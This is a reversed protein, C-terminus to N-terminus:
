IVDFPTGDDDYAVSPPTWIPPEEDAPDSRVPVTTASITVSTGPTVLISVKSGDDSTFTLFGGGARIAALTQRRLDDATELPALAHPVGDVTIRTREISHAM